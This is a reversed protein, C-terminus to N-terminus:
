KPVEGIAKRLKPSLQYLAPRGPQSKQIERTVIGNAVLYRIPRQVLSHRDVYPDRAGLATALKPTNLGDPQVALLLVICKQQPLLVKDALIKAIFEQPINM